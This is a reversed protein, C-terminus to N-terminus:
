DSALAGIVRLLYTGVPLKGVKWGLPTAGPRMTYVEVPAHERGTRETQRTKLVYNIIPETYTVPAAPLEGTHDRVIFNRVLSKADFLFPADAAAPGVHEVSGPYPYAVRAATSQGWASLGSLNGVLFFGCILVDLQKM